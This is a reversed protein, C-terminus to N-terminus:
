RNRTLKTTIYATSAPMKAQIDVIAKLSMLSRYEIANGELFSGHAMAWVSDCDLMVVIM